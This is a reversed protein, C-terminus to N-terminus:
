GSAVSVGCLRLGTRTRGLLMLAAARWKPITQKQGLPLLPGRCVSKKRSYLDPKGSVGKGERHIEGAEFNEGRM